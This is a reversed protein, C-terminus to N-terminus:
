KEEIITFMIPVYVEKGNGLKLLYYATPEGVNGFCDIRVVDKFVQVGGLPIRVTAIYVVWLYALLKKM